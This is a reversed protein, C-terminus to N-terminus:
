AGLVSDLFGFYEEEFLTSGDDVDDVEDWEGGWAYETAQATSVMELVGGKDHRAVFCFDGGRRHAEQEWNEPLSQGLIDDFGPDGPLLLLRDSSAEQM